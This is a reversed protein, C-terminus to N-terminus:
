RTIFRAPLKKGTLRFIFHRSSVGSDGHNSSSLGSTDVRRSSVKKMGNTRMGVMNHSGMNAGISGKRVQNAVYKGDVQTRSTYIGSQKIAGEYNKQAQVSVPGDYNSKRVRKKDSKIVIREGHQGIQTSPSTLFNGQQKTSYGRSLINQLHKTQINTPRMPTRSNSAPHQQAQGIHSATSSLNTSYPYKSNPSVFKKVNAEGMTKYKAQIPEGQTRGQEYNKSRIQIGPM